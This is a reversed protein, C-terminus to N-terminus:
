FYLDSDQKPRNEFFMIFYIPLYTIKGKHSIKRENSLVHEEILSSIKRFLM